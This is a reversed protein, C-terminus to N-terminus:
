FKVKGKRLVNALLYFMWPLFSFAKCKTCKITSERAKQVLETVENLFVTEKQILSKNEMIHEKKRSEDLKCILKM